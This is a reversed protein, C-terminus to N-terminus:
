LTASSRWTLEEGGRSEAGQEWRHDSLMASQARPQYAGRFFGEWCSSSESQFMDLDLIVKQGDEKVGMGVLVPM